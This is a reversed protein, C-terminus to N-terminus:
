IFYSEVIEAVFSHNPYYLNSRRRTLHPGAYNAYGFAIRFGAPKEGDGGAPQNHLSSMTALFYFLFSYLVTILFIIVVFVKM